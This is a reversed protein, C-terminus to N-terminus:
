RWFTRGLQGAWQDEFPDRVLIVDERKPSTSLLAVPVGILDVVRCSLTACSLGCDANSLPAALVAKSGMCGPEGWLMQAKGLYRGRSQNM